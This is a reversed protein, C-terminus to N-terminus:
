PEHYLGPVSYALRRAVLIFISVLLYIILTISVLIFLKSINALQQDKSLAKCYELSKVVEPASKYYLLTGAITALISLTVFAVVITWVGFLQSKDTTTTRQHNSVGIAAPSM